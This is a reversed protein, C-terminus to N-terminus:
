ASSPMRSRTRDRPSPSTYLLCSLGKSSLPQQAGTGTPIVRIGLREESHVIVSRAAELDVTTRLYDNLGPHKTLGFLRDVTQNRRDGAILAVQRGSQALAIAMNIAATSRGEADGASTIAISDAVYGNRPAMAAAALRRFAEAGPATANTATILAPEDESIRPVNGLVPVGLDLEVDDIDTLRRDLRNGLAAALLGFLLGMILGAVIALPRPVGESMPVPTSPAGLFRGVDVPAAGIANLDSRVDIRENELRTLRIDSLREAASDEEAALRIAIENDIRLDLDVLQVELEERQGAWIAEEAGTRVDLYSEATALVLTEAREATGAQYGFHLIHNDCDIQVSIDDGDLCPSVQLNERWLDLTLDDGAAAIVENGVLPSVAIGVETEESIPDAPRGADQEGVSLLVSVRSEYFSRPAPLAIAAIVAFLVAFGVILWWNRKLIRAYQGLEIEDQDNM